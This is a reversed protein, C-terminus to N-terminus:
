SMRKGELAALADKQLNGWSTTIEEEVKATIGKFYGSLQGLVKDLTQNINLSVGFAYSPLTTTALLVGIVASSIIVKPNNIKLKM